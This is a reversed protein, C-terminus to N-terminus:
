VLSEAVALIKTGLYIGEGTKDLAIEDDVTVTVTIKGWAGRARLEKGAAKEADARCKALGDEYDGVPVAGTSLHAVFGDPAPSLRVTRECRLDATVAGIANAVEKHDPLLCEAGLVKAVPPLFLGIPAGLGILSVQCRPLLAFLPSPTERNQWLIHILNDLQGTTEGPVAKSSTLNLLIRFLNAFLKEQVRDYIARAFVAPEEERYLPLQFILHRVADLSSEASYVSYDGLLHMADTPTLGCRM